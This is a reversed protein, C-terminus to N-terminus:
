DDCDSVRFAARSLELWPRTSSSPTRHLVWELAQFFYDAIWLKLNERADEEQNAVWCDVLRKVDVDENSLFIMGM